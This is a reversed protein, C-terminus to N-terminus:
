PAPQAHKGAPTVKGAQLATHKCPPRRPIHTYFVSLSGPLRNADQIRLCSEGSLMHWIRCTLNHSASCAQKAIPKTM